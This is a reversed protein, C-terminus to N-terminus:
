WCLIRLIKHKDNFKNAAFVLKQYDGICRYTDDVVSNACGVHTLLEKNNISQTQHNTFSHYCLFLFFFMSCM